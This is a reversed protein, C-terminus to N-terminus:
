AEPRLWMASQEGDYVVAGDQRFEFRYHGFRKDGLKRSPPGAVELEMPSDVHALKHFRAQKIRVGYGVWGDAHRLGDVHYAHAYGMIGTLHIMIGAAVHRPHKVPHVRQARVLPLDASTPLRAVIRGGAVDIELFADILLGEPGYPCDDAFLPDIAMALLFCSFWGM